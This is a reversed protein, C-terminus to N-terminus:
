TCPVAGEDVAALKAGFEDAVNSNQIQGDLIHINRSAHKVSRPDHTVMCITCGEDHLKKLIDMVASANESDLNGTPEDALILSPNNVLARAIAVRQQQGGSLQAPHHQIRHEMNVKTLVEVAIRKMDARSVGKQYTLPLMVNEEVSLDSILNFSQFIFGIEKNRVAARQDRSLNVVDINSIKFKGTTSEDLLGLISLLTSKGSGSPGTFSVYEGENIMLNIDTLARTEVDATRFSKNVGNLEIVTNTM